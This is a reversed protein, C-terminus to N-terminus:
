AQGELRRIRDAIQRADPHTPALRWGISSVNVNNRSWDDGDRGNYQVFWVGQSPGEERIVFFDNNWIALQEPRRFTFDGEPWTGKKRIAKSLEIWEEQRRAAEARRAERKEKATKRATAASPDIDELKAAQYTFLWAEDVGPPAGFSMAEDVWQGRGKSLLKYDTGGVSVIDGKDYPAHGSRRSQSGWLSLKTTPVVKEEGDEQEVRTTTKGWVSELLGATLPAELDRIAAGINNYGQKTKARRVWRRRERDWKFNQQKIMDRYPATDEYSGWIWMVVGDGSSLAKVRSKLARPDEKDVLAQARRLRKDNIAKVAQEALAGAAGTRYAWRGLEPDAERIQALLDMTSLPEALHMYRVVAPKFSRATNEFLHQLPNEDPPNM